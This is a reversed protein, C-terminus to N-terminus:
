PEHTHISSAHENGTQLPKLAAICHILIAEALEPGQSSQAAICVSTAARCFGATDSDAPACLPDPLDDGHENARIYTHIYAHIYTYLRTGPNASRTRAARRPTRHLPVASARQGGGGASWVAGRAVVVVALLVRRPLLSLPLTPRRDVVGSLLLHSRCPSVADSCLATWSLPASFRSIPM